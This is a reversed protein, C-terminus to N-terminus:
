VARRMLAGESAEILNLFDLAQPQNLTYLRPYTETVSVINAAVLNGLATKLNQPQTDLALAIQHASRYSGEDKLLARVIAANHKTVKIM